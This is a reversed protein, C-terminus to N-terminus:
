CLIFHLISRCAYRKNLYHKDFHTNIQKTSHNKIILATNEWDFMAAPIIGTAEKATAALFVGGGPGASVVFSRFRSRDCGTKFELKNPRM